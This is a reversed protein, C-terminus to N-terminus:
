SDSTQTATDTSASGSAPLDTNGSDSKGPQMKKKLTDRAQVLLSYDPSTMTRLLDYTIAERPITGLSELCLAMLGVYYGSDPIGMESVDIEDGVTSLRLEFDRHFEGNYEVGVALTGKITLAKDM